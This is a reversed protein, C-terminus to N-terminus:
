SRGTSARWWDHMTKRRRRRSNGSTRSCRLRTSTPSLNRASRLGGAEARAHGLVAAASHEACATNRHEPTASGRWRGADRAPKKFEKIVQAEEIRRRARWQALVATGHLAARRLRRGCVLRRRQVRPAFRRRRVQAHAGGRRLDGPVGAEPSAPGAGRVEDGAHVEGALRQARHRGGQAAIAANIIADSPQKIGLNVVRYGNNTLIIDVLNKGIDHVDGKVTALM